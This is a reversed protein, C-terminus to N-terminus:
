KTKRLLPVQSIRHELPVFRTVISRWKFDKIREWNGMHIFDLSRLLARSAEQDARGTSGAWRGLNEAMHMNDRLPSSFM